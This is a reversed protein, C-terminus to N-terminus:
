AQDPLAGVYEAVTVSRRTRFPNYATAMGGGVGALALGIALFQGGDSWSRSLLAGTAGLLTFAGLLLVLVGLVSLLWRVYPRPGIEIPLDPKVRATAALIAACAEQFGLRDPDAEGRARGGGHHLHLAGGRGVLDLDGSRMSVAAYDYLTTQNIRGRELDRLALRARLRGTKADEVSVEDAAVRVRLRPGVPATKFVFEQPAESM